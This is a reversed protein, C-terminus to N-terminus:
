REKTLEQGIRENRRTYELGKNEERPIDCENMQENIIEYITCQVSTLQLVVTRKM